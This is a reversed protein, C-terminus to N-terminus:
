YINDDQKVYKASTFLQKRLFFGILCIVLFVLVFYIGYRHLVTGIEEIYNGFLRGTMFLLLTWLFGTSYSIVAYRRFTMKNIGVLYPIIHRVVPFFYSIFLSLSGYKEILLQSKLLYKNNKRKIVRDLIPAGLWRGLFYGISLGSAVGAYTVLFSPIPKLLGLTTVFGGTMVIVEDPIPMGVIGLWLCFFLAPYGYQHVLEILTSADM